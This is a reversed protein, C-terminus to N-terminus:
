DDHESDLWVTTVAPITLTAGDVDADDASSLLQKAPRDLQLGIPRDTFNTAVVVSGRRFAVVDRSTDLWHVTDDMGVVTDRRVRLANRYFSLTSQPDASETEVNRSAAAPDFPLWSKGTTFGFGPAQATWPMPTRAGDRGPRGSRFWVPDQRLEPPVDTQELGLEEGQYLYPSGPLALLLATAARARRLGKEGGGFRTPHRELDHNSLVWTPTTGPRRFLALSREIVGRFAAADWPTKAVSFNFAEHLRQPGVYHAVRDMDFLFV